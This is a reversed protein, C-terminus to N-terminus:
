SQTEDGGGKQKRYRELAVQQNMNFNEMEYSFVFCNMADLAEQTGAPAKGWGEEEYLKDDSLIFKLLYVVRNIARELEDIKEDRAELPEENYNIM